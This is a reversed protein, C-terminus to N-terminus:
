NRCSKGEWTPYRSLTKKDRRRQIIGFPIWVIGVFLGIFVFVIKGTPKLGQNFYLLTAINLALFALIVVWWYEAWYEAM